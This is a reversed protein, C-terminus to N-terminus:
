VRLPPPAAVPLAPRRNAQVAELHLLEATIHRNGRGFLLQGLAMRQRTLRLGVNRLLAKVDHGPYGTSQRPSSCRANEAAKSHARTRVPAM